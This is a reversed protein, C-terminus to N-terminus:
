EQLTLKLPQDIESLLAGYGALQGNDAMIKQTLRARVKREIEERNALQKEFYTIESDIDRYEDDLSNIKLLLDKTEEVTTIDISPGCNNHPAGPWPLRFKTPDKPIDHNPHIDRYSVQKFVESCYLDLSKSFYYLTVKEDSLRIYEKRQNPGYAYISDSWFSSGTLRLHALHTPSTSRVLSTTNGFCSNWRSIVSSVKAIEDQFTEILLDHLKILEERILGECQSLREEFLLKEKLLNEIHGEVFMNALDSNSVSLNISM